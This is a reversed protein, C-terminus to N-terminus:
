PRLPALPLHRIARTLAEVPERASRANAVLAMEVQPLPPLQFRGSLSRLDPPIRSQALVCIGIGARTAALVGNIERSNCTIRWSRGATTLSEIAATRSFSPAPYTILPVPATPDLQANDLGVWALRDRRVMRGRDSGAEQNIFILDLRNAELRRLLTGSQTVTLELNIRPNHQRFDRLIRPLEGLALEDAAGFRLRGAMATGRFYSVAEDNAALITRAFGAMAEGNDTLGVHRTDRSVLVRGCAEELRRVHQSVTPQSLSLQEAARSFSLQDCVALFTRLLVPDFSETPM